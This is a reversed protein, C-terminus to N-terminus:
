LLYFSFGVLVIIFFFCVCIFDHLHKSFFKFIIQFGKLTRKSLDCWYFIKTGDPTIRTPVTNRSQQQQTTTSRNYWMSHHNTTRKRKPLTSYSRTLRGINKGFNGNKWDDLERSHFITTKNNDDEQQEKKVNNDSKKTNKNIITPRKLNVLEISPYTKKNNSEPKTQQLLQQQQQQQQNNTTQEVPLEEKGNVRIMLKSDLDNILGFEHNGIPLDDDVNNLSTADDALEYEEDQLRNNNKGNDKKPSNLCNKKKKLNNPMEIESEVTLINRHKISKVKKPTINILCAPSNAEDCTRCYIESM